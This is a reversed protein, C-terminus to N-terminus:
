EKTKNLNDKREQMKAFYHATIFGAGTFAFILFPIWEEVYTYNDILLGLGLGIGFFMIIFGLKLLIYNDRRSKIFEMMEQYSMNKEIMLQKERSRYYIFTVFVAGVVLIPLAVSFFVIIPVEPPM